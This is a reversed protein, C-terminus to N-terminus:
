PRAVTARADSSSVSKKLLGREQLSDVLRTTRSASLGAAEALDSMRLERNSAESLSMLAIYESATLGANRALDSDLHRPLVRIVRMVARWLEEERESLPEVGAM